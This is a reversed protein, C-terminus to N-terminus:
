YVGTYIISDKELLDYAIEQLNINWGRKIARKYDRKFRTTFNCTFM